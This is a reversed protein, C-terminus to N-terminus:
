SDLKQPNESSFRQQLKRIFHDLIWIICLLEDATGNIQM